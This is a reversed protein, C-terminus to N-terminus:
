NLHSLFMSECVCSSLDLDKNRNHAEQMLCCIDTNFNFAAPYSYDDSFLTLFMM